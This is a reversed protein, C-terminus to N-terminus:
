AWVESDLIVSDTIEIDFKDELIEMLKKMTKKSNTLMQNSLEFTEGVLLCGSTDYTFNGEHIRVGTFNPVNLIEPLRRQFKPSFSIVCHYRGAPIATEHLIKKKRIADELTLCQFDTGEITMKGLTFHDSKMYRKVKVLM